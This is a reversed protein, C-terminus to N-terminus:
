GVPRRAWGCDGSCAAAIAGWTKGSESEGSWLNRKGEYALGVIDPVPPPVGDFALLDIPALWTNEELPFHANVVRAAVDDTM